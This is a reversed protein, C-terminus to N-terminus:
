PASWIHQPQPKMGHAQWTPVDFNPCTKHPEVQRHGLIRVGPYRAMLDKVLAELAQWQAPTFQATQPDEPGGGGILCIGLSHQNHGQAHAGVTSEPRGTEVQGDLRIVYHYGIDSWGRGNPPPAPPPPDTHWRRIDAATFPQGNPTASCHLIIEEMTRM